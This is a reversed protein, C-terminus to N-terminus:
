LEVDPVKLSAACARAFKMQVGKPIPVLGWSPLHYDGHPARMEGIVGNAGGRNWGRRFHTEQDTSTAPIIRQVQATMM